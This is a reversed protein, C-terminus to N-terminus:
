QATPADLSLTTVDWTGYGTQFLCNLAGSVVSFTAGIGAGRDAIATVGNYTFMVFYTDSEYATDTRFCSVMCLTAPTSSGTGYNATIATASNTIGQVNM